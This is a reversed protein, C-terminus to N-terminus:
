PSTGRDDVLEALVRLLDLWGHFECAAGGDGAVLGTPPETGDLDIQIRSTVLV